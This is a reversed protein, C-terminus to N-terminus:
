VVAWHLIYKECLPSLFAPSNLYKFVSTQRFRISLVETEAECLVGDMETIVIVQQRDDPFDERKIVPILVVRFVYYASHPLIRV